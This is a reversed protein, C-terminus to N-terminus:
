SKVLSGNQDFQHILIFIINLTDFYIIWIHFAQSGVSRASVHKLLDHYDHDEMETNGHYHVGHHGQAHVSSFSAVIAYVITSINM